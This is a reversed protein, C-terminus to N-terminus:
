PLGCGMRDVFHTRCAAFEAMSGIRGSHRTHAITPPSKVECNAIFM